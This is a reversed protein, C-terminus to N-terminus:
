TIRRLKSVLWQPKAAEPSDQLHRKKKLCETRRRYGPSLFSLGWLLGRWEPGDLPDAFAERSKRARDNAAVWIRVWGFLM